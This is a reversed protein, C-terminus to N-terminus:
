FLVQSLNCHESFIAQNLHYQLIASTTHIKFGYKKSLSLEIGIIGELIEFLMGKNPL